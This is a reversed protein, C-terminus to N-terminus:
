CLMCHSLGPSERRRCRRHEGPADHSPTELLTRIAQRPGCCECPLPTGLDNQRCSRWSRRRFPGWEEAVSDVADGRSGSPAIETGSLEGMEDPIIKTIVRMVRSIRPCTPRQNYLACAFATRSSRRTATATSPPPSTSPASALPSLQPPWSRILSKLTMTRAKSSLFLLLYGYCAVVVWQQVKVTVYTLLM